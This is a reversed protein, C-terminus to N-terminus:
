VCIVSTSCSILPNIVYSRFGFNSTFAILANFSMSRYIPDSAWHTLAAWGDMACSFVSGTDDGPRPSSGLAKEVTHKVSAFGRSRHLTWLVEDSVRDYSHRLFNGM